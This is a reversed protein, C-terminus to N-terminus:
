CGDHAGGLIALIMTAPQNQKIAREAALIRGALREARENAAVVLARMEAETPTFRGTGTM